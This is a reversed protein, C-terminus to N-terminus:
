FRILNYSIGVGVFIQPIFETGIGYSLVPGIGIKKPRVDNIVRYTTLSLTKSYPNYNVVEAYPTPKKFWGNSKEKNIIAYEYHMKLKFDVQDKNTLTDRKVSYKWDVWKNNLSDKYFSRDLYVVVPKTYVTDIVTEGEVYTVSGKKGLEKKYQSVVKQLRLIEKDKTQIELFSKPNSTEIIQKESHSLGQSDQWTKLSDNLAKYADNNVQLEGNANCSRFLLFLLIGIVVLCIKILNADSKKSFIVNTEMLILNFNTLSM